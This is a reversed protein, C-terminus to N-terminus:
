ERMPKVEDFSLGHENGVEVAIEDLPAFLRYSLELLPGVGAVDSDRRASARLPLSYEGFGLGLGDPLERSRTQGEARPPSTSRSATSCLPARCRTWFIGTTSNISTSARGAPRSSRDRAAATM